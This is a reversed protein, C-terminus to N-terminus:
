QELIEMVVAHSLRVTELHFSSHLSSDVIQLWREQMPATEFLGGIDFYNMNEDAEWTQSSRNAELNRSSSSHQM